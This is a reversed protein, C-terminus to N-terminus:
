QKPADFALAQSFFPFVADRLRVGIRNVHDGPFTQFVHRVGALTLATDLRMIERPDVLNDQAGIDLQVARMALLNSRYVPIMTLPVHEAFRSAVGANETWRGNRREELLSFFFPGRNTDPAFAAALAVTVRVPMPMRHLAEPSRVTAIADFLGSDRTSDFAFPATCCPSMAYMAGFVSGGHRMGLYLAGYGGMSHGALGRSAARAITRYKADVWRVLDGTIFDDWQGSTASNVYFSGGLRTSADPMVVIMERVAGSAVLADMIGPVGILGRPAQIWSTVDTNDYGHLLYVVPYRTASSRDYGAPLYVSVRAYEPDGLRNVLSRSHVTDVVIRGVQAGAAAPAALVILCCALRASLARM